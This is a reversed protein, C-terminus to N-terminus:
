NKTIKFHLKNVHHEFLALRISVGDVIWDYSEDSKDVKKNHAEGFEKILHSLILKLYREAEEDSYARFEISSFKRFYSDVGFNWYTTSLDLELGNLISHKGWHFTDRYGRRNKRAKFSNKLKEIPTGWKLFSGTEEFLIGNSLSTSQDTDASMEKYKFAKIVLYVGCAAIPLSIVLGIYGANDREKASYVVLSFTMFLGFIILILGILIIAIKIM